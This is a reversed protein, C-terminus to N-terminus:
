ENLEKGIGTGAYPDGGATAQDGSSAEWGRQNIWVQLGPVFRGGERVWDESEKAVKLGSRVAGIEPRPKLKMWAKEALARRSRNQWHPYSAWLKSFIGRWAADAASHKEKSEETAKTELEKNRTGLETSSQDVFLSGITGLRKLASAKGAAMGSRKRRKYELQHAAHQERMRKQIWFGPRSELDFARAVRDRVEAWEAPTCMALNALLEDDDEVVGPEPQNWLAPLLAGGYAGRGLVGMRRVAPDNLYDDPYFVFGRARDRQSRPM